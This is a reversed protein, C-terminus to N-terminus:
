LSILKQRNIQTDGFHRERISRRIEKLEGGDDFFFELEVGDLKKKAGKRLSFVLSDGSSVEGGFAKETGKIGM